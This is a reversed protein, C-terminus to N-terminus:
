DIDDRQDLMYAAFAFCHVAVFIQSRGYNLYGHCYLSVLIVEGARLQDFSILSALIVHGKETRFGNLLAVLPTILVLQIGSENDRSESM